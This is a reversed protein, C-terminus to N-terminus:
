NGGLVRVDGVSIETVEVYFTFWGKPFTMEVYHFNGESDKCFDFGQGRFGSKKFEEYGIKQCAENDAKTTMGKVYGISIVGCILVLIILVVGLIVM